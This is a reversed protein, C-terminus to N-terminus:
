PYNLYRWSIIACNQDLINEKEREKETKTIWHQALQVLQGSIEANYKKNKAYKQFHIKNM